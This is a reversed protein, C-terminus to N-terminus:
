GECAEGNFTPSKLKLDTPLGPEPDVPRHPAAASARGFLLRSGRGAAWCRCGRRPWGHEAARGHAAQVRSGIRVRQGDVRSERAGAARGGGAALDHVGGRRCHGGAGAGGVREPQHAERWPACTLGRTTPESPQCAARRGRSAAAPRPPKANFRFGQKQGAQIGRCAGSTRAPPLAM